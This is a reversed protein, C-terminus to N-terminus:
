LMRSPWRRAFATLFYRTSWPMSADRMAVAVKPSSRRTVLALSSRGSLRRAMTTMTTSYRGCVDISSGNHIPAYPRGHEGFTAMSGRPPLPDVAPWRRRLHSAATRFDVVHDQAVNPSCPRSSADDRVITTVHLHVKKAEDATGVLPEYAINMTHKCNGETTCPANFCKTPKM